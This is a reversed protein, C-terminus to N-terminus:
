LIIHMYIVNYSMTNARWTNSNYTNTTWERYNEKYRRCLVYCLICFLKVVAMWLMMFSIIFMIDAIHPLDACLTYTSLFYLVVGVGLSCGCKVVYRWLSETNRWIHCFQMNLKWKSPWRLSATPFQPTSNRHILHIIFRLLDSLSAGHYFRPVALGIPSLLILSQLTVCPNWNISSDM